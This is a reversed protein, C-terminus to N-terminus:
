RITKRIKGETAPNAQALETPPTQIEGGVLQSM